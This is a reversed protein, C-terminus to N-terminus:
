KKKFYIYDNNNYNGSLIRNFVTITDNENCLNHSNSKKNFTIINYSKNYCSNFDSILKKNFNNDYIFYDVKTLNFTKILKKNKFITFVTNTQNSRKKIKYNEKNLSYEYLEIIGYKKKLNKYLEDKDNEIGKKYLFSSILNIYDREHFIYNKIKEGLYDDYLNSKLFSKIILEM